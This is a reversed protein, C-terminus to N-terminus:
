ADPETLVQLDPVDRYHRANHTVLPVDLFLATAAVWADHPSIQRGARRLVAVLFAWLTCVTDDPYHVICGQVFQDMRARRVPGWQRLEAGLRLEALVSFPLIVSQGQFHRLYRPGRLPDDKVVFSAADTDCVLSPPAASLTM